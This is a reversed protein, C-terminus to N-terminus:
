KVRAIAPQRPLSTTALSSSLFTSCCDPHLTTFFGFFATSRRPPVHPPLHAPSPTHPITHHSAGWAQLCGTARPYSGIVVFRASSPVWKTDYSTIAVSKVIHELIQPGQTQNKQKSTQHLFFIVFPSPSLLSTSPSLSPHTTHHAIDAHTHRPTHSLLMPLLPSALPARDDDFHRIIISPNLFNTMVDKQFSSGISLPLPPSTRTENADDDLTRRVQSMDM